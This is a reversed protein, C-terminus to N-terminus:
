EAMGVDCYNIYFAMVCRDGVNRYSQVYMEKEM